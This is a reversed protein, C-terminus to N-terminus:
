RRWCDAATWTGTVTQVGASTLRFSACQLDDALQAGLPTATLVYAQAVVAGTVRYTGSQTDVPLTVRQASAVDTCTASLYSYPSSNTYCRELRQATQLLLTKADARNARVVYNRYSPIAIAAIIGIIAVVVMLEILTIGRQKPKMIVGRFSPVGPNM